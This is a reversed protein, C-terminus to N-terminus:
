VVVAVELYSPRLVFAYFTGRWRAWDIGGGGVFFVDYLM